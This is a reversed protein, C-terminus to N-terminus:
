HGGCAARMMALLRAGTVVAGDSGDEALAAAHAKRAAQTGDCIASDSATNVCGGVLSLLILGLMTKRM